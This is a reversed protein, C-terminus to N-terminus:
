FQGGARRGRRPRNAKAALLQQGIAILNAVRHSNGIVIQIEAHDRDRMGVTEAIKSVGSIARPTGITM